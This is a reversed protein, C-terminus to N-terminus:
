VLREKQVFTMSAILSITIGPWNGGIAAAGRRGWSYFNFGQIAPSLSLPPFFLIINNKMAWPPSKSDRTGVLLDSVTGDERERLMPVVCVGLPTGSFNFLWLHQRNLFYSHKPFPFSPFEIWYAPKMFGRTLYVDAYRCMWVALWAIMEIEIWVIWDALWAVAATFVIWLIMCICM